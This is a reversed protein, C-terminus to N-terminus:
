ETRVGPLPPGRPATYRHIVGIIIMPKACDPCCYIGREARTPEPNQQQAPYKDGDPTLASRAKILSETRVTNAQLGCYRIRHFGRPLVHLLFRRIFEDVPLIM